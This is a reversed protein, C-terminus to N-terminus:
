ATAPPKRAIAPGTTAPTLPTMPIGLAIRLVDDVDTVYHFTMEARVDAPVDDLDKKNRECLIIELNGRSAIYEAAQMWEEITSAWGGSVRLAYPALEGLGMAEVVRIANVKGSSCASGASVMAGPRHGTTDVPLGTLATPAGGFFFGFATAM